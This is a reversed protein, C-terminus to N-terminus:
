CWLYMVPTRLHFFSTWQLREAAPKLTMLRSQAQWSFVSRCKVSGLCVGPPFHVSPKGSISLRLVHLYRAHIRQEGQNDSFSKSRTFLFADSPDYAWQVAPPPREFSQYSDCNWPRLPLLDKLWWRNNVTLQHIKRTQKRWLNRQAKSASVHSLTQRCGVLRVPSRKCTLCILPMTGYTQYFYLCALISSLIGLGEERPIGTLTFCYVLACSLRCFPSFLTSWELLEM